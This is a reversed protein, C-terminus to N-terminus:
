LCYVFFGQRFIKFNKFPQEKNFIYFRKGRFQTGSYPYLLRLFTMKRIRRQGTRQKPCVPFPQRPIQICVTKHKFRQALPVKQCVRFGYRTLKRM